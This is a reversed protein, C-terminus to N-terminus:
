VYLIKISNWINMTFYTIRWLIPNNTYIAKQLKNEKLDDELCNGGSNHKVVKVKYELNLWLLIIIKTNGTRRLNHLIVMFTLSCVSKLTAKMFEMYNVVKVKLIINWTSDCYFLQKETRHWDYSLTLLCSAPNAQKIALTMDDTLWLQEACPSTLITTNSM